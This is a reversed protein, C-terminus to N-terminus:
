RPPAWLAGRAQGLADAAGIVPEVLRRPRHQDRRVAKLHQFALRGDLRDGLARLVSRRQAGAREVHQRLVHQAAGAALREPGIVQELFDPGGRGEGIERPRIEVGHDIENGSAAVGQLDILAKCFDPGVLVPAVTDAVRADGLLVPEVNAGNYFFGHDLHPQHARSLATLTRVPTIARPPRMRPSSSSYKM